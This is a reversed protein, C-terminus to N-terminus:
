LELNWKNISVGCKESSLKYVIELPEYWFLEKLVIKPAEGSLSDNIGNNSVPEYVCACCHGWGSKIVFYEPTSEEIM